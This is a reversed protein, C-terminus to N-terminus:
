ERIMQIEKLIRSLSYVGSEKVLNWKYILHKLQITFLLLVKYIKNSPDLRRITRNDTYWSENQLKHTM